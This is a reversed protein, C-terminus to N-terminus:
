RSPTPSFDSRSRQMQYPDISAVYRSRLDSANSEFQSQSNAKWVGSVGGLLIGTAIYLAAFAPRQFLAM